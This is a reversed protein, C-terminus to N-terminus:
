YKYFYTAICVAIKVGFVGDKHLKKAIRKTSFTFHLGLCLLSHTHICLIYIYVYM